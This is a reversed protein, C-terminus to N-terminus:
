RANAPQPSGTHHATRRNRARFPAVMREQIVKLLTPKALQLAFNLLAVAIGAKGVEEAAPKRLKPGKVVVKRRMPPLKSLLLGVVAAGAFWPVPNRHLQRKLKKGVALDERLESKSVGFQSRALALENILSQKLTQDAM